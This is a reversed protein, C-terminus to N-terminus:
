RDQRHHLDPYHQDEAEPTVWRLMTAGCVCRISVASGSPGPQTADGTLPGCEHHERVFAEVDALIGV